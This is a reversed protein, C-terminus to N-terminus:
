AKNKTDFPQAEGWRNSLLGAQILYHRNGTEFPSRWSGKYVKGGYRPLCDLACPAHRNREANIPPSAKRAPSGQSCGCRLSHRARERRM